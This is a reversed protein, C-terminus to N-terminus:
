IESYFYFIIIIVRKEEKFKPDDVKNKDYWDEFGSSCEEFWKMFKDYEKLQHEEDQQEILCDRTKM